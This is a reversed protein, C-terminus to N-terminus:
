FVGPVLHWSVRGCYERYRQDQRLIREELLARIILATDALVMLAANMANPHAALFGIHCVLYGTYIPHRMMVYPGRDVVGRNAPVLGFSRGLTMKGAIVLSLGACSILATAADPLIPPVDTARLLPPAAASVLTVLGAFFSRDIVETRRRFVTFVVVLTESVLLMLGTLHHTRMFDALLNASLLVFLVAIAARALLDGALHRRDRM